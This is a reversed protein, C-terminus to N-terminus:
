DWIKFRRAFLAVFPQEGLKSIPFGQPFMAFGYMALKMEQNGNFTQIIGPIFLLTVYVKVLGWGAKRLRWATSGQLCAQPFSPFAKFRLKIDM